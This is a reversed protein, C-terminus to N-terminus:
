LMVKRVFFYDFDICKDQDIISHTQEFPLESLSVRRGGEARRL